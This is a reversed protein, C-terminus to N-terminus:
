TEVELKISSQLSVAPLPLNPHLACSAPKGEDPDATKLARFSTFNLNAVRRWTASLSSPKFSHRSIAGFKYNMTSYGFRDHRIAHCREEAEFRLDPRVSQVRYGYNYKLVFENNESDM